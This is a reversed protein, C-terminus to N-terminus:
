SITVTHETGAGDQQTPQMEIKMDWQQWVIINSMSVVNVLAMATLFPQYIPGGELLAVGEVIVLLTIGIVFIRRLILKNKDTIYM